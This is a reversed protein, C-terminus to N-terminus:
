NADTITIKVQGINTKNANSNKLKGSLTITASDSSVSGTQTLTAGRSADALVLSGGDVTATIGEYGDNIQATVTALIATNSRNTVTVKNAGTSCTWATDETVVRETYSHTEPDWEKVLTGANYVFEMDGWSVDVYYVTEPEALAEKCVLVDKSLSGGDGSLALACAATAFVSAVLSICVFRILHKKM